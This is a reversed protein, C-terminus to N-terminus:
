ATPGNRTNRVVVLTTDDRGRSHDRFLTGAILAPHRSELGPYVGPDWRTTMGDSYMFLLARHPFPFSFEQVKRVQHGLIGNHSALSRTKGESRVFCAINGVGCFTGVEAHPRLEVVAAAAGRTPRLARHVADVQEAPPRQATRQVAERAALAATAAEPGHGLGDAVLLTSRGRVESLAWEDGCASEGPKPVCVVGVAIDAAARPPAGAWIVCHIVTGSGPQTYLDFDSSLRALAGLGLGPTGATSHGDRMSAALNAIGPGRDLALLDVGCAGDAERAQLVITGGGAHRVLNTAAETAALAVTGCREESFGLRRAMGVAKRRVEGVLSPDTVAIAIRANVAM